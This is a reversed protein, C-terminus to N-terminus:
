VAFLPKRLRSRLEKIQNNKNTLMKKMNNYQSTEGFKKELESKTQELEAQLALLQHKSETLDGMVAANDKELQSSNEDLNIKMEAMKKEMDKIIQVSAKGSKIDDITAELQKQTEALSKKLMEKERIADTAKAELMKFRGRLTENEEKLRSIEMHLLAAGGGENLPQLKSTKGSLSGSMGQKSMNSAAEEEEFRAIEELLERNELQSIDAQLKLHWKEAQHFLQQLLLANTHSVNLLETEVDGKLVSRLEDMIESVEDNTYTDENLRSDKLDNVCADVARLQQSRKFKAFRLYNVITQQHIENLGTDSAM